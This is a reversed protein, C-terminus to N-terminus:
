QAKNKQEAQIKVRYAWEGFNNYTSVKLRFTAGNIDMNASKRKLAHLQGRLSRAEEGSSDLRAIGVGLSGKIACVEEYGDKYEIEIGDADHEVAITVLKSLIDDNNLESNNM